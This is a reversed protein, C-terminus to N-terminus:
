LVARPPSLTRPLCWLQISLMYIPKTMHLYKSFRFMGWVIAGLIFSSTLVLWADRGGDTPPEAQAVTDNAFNWRTDNSQLEHVGAEALEGM